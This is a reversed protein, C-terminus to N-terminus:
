PHVFRSLFNSTGSVDVTFYIRECMNMRFLEAALQFVDKLDALGLIESVLTFKQIIKLTLTQDIKIM